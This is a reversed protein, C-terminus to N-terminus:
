LDSDNLSNTYSVAKCCRESRERERERERYIYIYIYLIQSFEGKFFFSNLLIVYSSLYFDHQM